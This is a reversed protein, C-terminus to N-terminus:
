DYKVAEDRTMFFHIGTSCERWRNEDFDPVNVEEGITYVFTEDYDSTISKLESESGDIETISLVKAKSCRCKRSTASSRKADETILLKIIKHRAKKFGIFPGEEPCQLAFFATHENYLVAIFKAALLNAGAFNARCINTRVFKSKSFNAKFLNAGVMDADTFNSDIFYAYSADVKNLNASVFSAGSFEAAYINAKYFNTGFLDANCFTAKILNRGSFDLGSLDLGSLNAGKGGLENQLWKEHLELIENLREQTM